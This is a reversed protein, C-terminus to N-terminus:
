FLSMVVIDDAEAPSFGMDVLAEWTAELNCLASSDYDATPSEPPEPICGIIAVAILGEVEKDVPSVAECDIQGAPEYAIQGAPEYAIQGAPEYGIEGAPAQDALLTASLALTLIAIYRTM